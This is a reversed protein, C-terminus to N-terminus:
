RKKTVFEYDLPLILEMIWLKSDFPTVGVMLNDFRGVGYQYKM